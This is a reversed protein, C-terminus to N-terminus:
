GIKITNNDIKVEVPGGEIHGEWKGNLQSLSLEGIIAAKNDTPAGIVVSNDIQGRGGNLILMWNGELTNEAMSPFIALLYLSMFKFIFQSIIKLFESIEIRRITHNM